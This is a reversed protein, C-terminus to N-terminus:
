CAFCIYQPQGAVQVHDVLGASGRGDGFGGAVCHLVIFGV